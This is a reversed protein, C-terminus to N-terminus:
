KKKKNYFLDTPKKISQVNPSAGAYLLNTPNKKNQKSSVSTSSPKTTSKLAKNVFKRSKYQNYIASPLGKIFDLGKKLIDKAKTKVSSLTSGLAAMKNNIYSKGSSITAGAKSKLTSISANAWKKAGILKMGVNNRTTDYWQRAHGQAVNLKGKASTYANGVKEGTLKAYGKATTMAGHLQGKTDNYIYQWKGNKFIKSLYKHKKWDLHELYPGNGMTNAMYADRMSYAYAM